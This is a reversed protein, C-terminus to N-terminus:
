KKVIFLYTKLEGSELVRKQLNWSDKCYNLSESGFKELITKGAEEELSRCDSETEELTIHSTDIVQIDSFGATKLCSVYEISKLFQYSLGDITVFRKMDDSYDYSNHMWDFIVIVGGPKLMKFFQRFMNTKDQVHLIAEKSFIIDFSNEQYPLTVGDFLAYSCSLSKAATKTVLHDHAEQAQAILQEDVDIGLADLNYKEAIHRTYGGLGCGVDLMRKNAFAKINQDRLLSDFVKEIKEYGGPSMNSEGWVTQLITTLEPTYESAQAVGVALTLASVVNHFSNKALM